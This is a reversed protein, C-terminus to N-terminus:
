AAAASKAAFVERIVRMEDAINEPSSVTRAVEERLITGYRKRLRHVSVKISDVSVCLNDAAAQYLAKDGSNALFGKLTTFHLVKGAAKYEAELQRWALDVVTAAWESEYIEEPPALASVISASRLDADGMDLPIHEYGGSRKQAKNAGIRDRLFNGLSSLLFARFKGRTKDAREFWPESLIFVFFEQTLDEPEHGSIRLIKIYAFLPYWYDRCLKERANRAGPGEGACAQITTWHTSAFRHRETINPPLRLKVYLFSPFM